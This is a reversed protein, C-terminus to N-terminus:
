INRVWGGERALYQKHFYTYSSPLFCMAILLHICSIAQRPEMDGVNHIVALTVGVSEQTGGM